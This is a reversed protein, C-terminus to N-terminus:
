LKKCMVLCDEGNTYYRTRAYVGNFGNKLYLRLAPTNSVRVELFVKEVGKAKALTCLETIISTAIGSNRYPETVAINEIDASDAAITIGGYGAIEGDDEAVVGTFNESEFGSVLMKYSWPEQPFCEKEMESIRLIDEYKWPRIIM